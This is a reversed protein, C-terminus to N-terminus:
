LAPEFGMVTTSPHLYQTTTEFVKKYTALDLSGKAGLLAPNIDYMMLNYWSIVDSLEKGHNNKM